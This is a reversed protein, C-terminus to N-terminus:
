GIAIAVLIGVLGLVIGLHLFLDIDALWGLGPIFQVVFNLVVFFIGLMIPVGRQTALWSTFRNLREITKEERSTM